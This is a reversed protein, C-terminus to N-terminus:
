FPMDEDPEGAISRMTNQWVEDDAAEDFGSDRGDDERGKRELAEVLRLRVGWEDARRQDKFCELDAENQEIKTECQRVQTLLRCYEGDQSLALVLNTKREEANKGNTASAVRAEAVALADKADRLDARTNVLKLRISQPDM